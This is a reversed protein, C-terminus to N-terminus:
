SEGTALEKKAQFVGRRSVTNDSRPDPRRRDGPRPALSCTEGAATKHFPGTPVTFAHNLEKDVAPRAV